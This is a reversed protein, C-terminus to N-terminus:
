HFTLHVGIFITNKKKTKIVIAPKIYDFLM